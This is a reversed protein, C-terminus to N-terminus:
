HIQRSLLFPSIEYQESPRGRGTSETIQRLMNRQVLLELPKEIADATKFKDRGKMWQCLERKSVKQVKKKLLLRLVTKADSLEGDLGMSAFACTTHPILYRAIKEARDWDEGTIDPRWQSLAFMGAIRVAAGPLKSGWDRVAGLAEFEQMQPELWESFARWGQFALTDLRLKLPKPPQFSLLKRLLKEYDSRAEDSMAPPDVLRYGIRGTPMSYLFRALLGTSRFLPTEALKEIIGPQIALGVTLAPKDILEAPRGKRDVRLMDGAHAKLYVDLNPETSYRGALLSFVGGEASMMAMRGDHAALLSALAEPTCDDVTFRPSEKIKIAAHREALEQAELRLKDREQTVKTKVIRSEIELLIKESIRFEQMSRAIAPKSEEAKEKEWECIPNIIEQLVSSKREGPGLVVAAYLNLPESYGPKVVAIGRRATCMALASLSLMAPLDVPTQTAVSLETVFRHLIPPLADIPFSPLDFDTFHIPSPWPIGEKFLPVVTDSPTATKSLGTLAADAAAADSFRPDGHPPEVTWSETRRQREVLYGDRYLIEVRTRGSEHAEIDLADGHRVKGGDIGVDGHNTSFCCWRDDTGPLTGFCKSHGCIPCDGGKRPWDGPNDANWKTIADQLTMAPASSPLRKPPRIPPLAVPAPAHVALESPSFQADRLKLVENSRPVGKAISNPTFYLRGLDDVLPADVHYAVLGPWDALNRELLAAAGLSAKVMAERDDCPSPFLFVVRFGNPTAHFVSGPFSPAAQHLLQVVGDSPPVNCRSCHKKKNGHIPCENYDIDLTVGIASEWNDALRYNAKWFHPSWWAEVEPARSKLALVLADPTLNELRHTKGQPNTLGAGVTIALDSASM